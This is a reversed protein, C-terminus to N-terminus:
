RDKKKIDEEAKKRYTGLLEVVEPHAKALEMAAAGSGRAGGGQEIYKALTPGDNGFPDLLARVVAYEGSQAAYHLATNKHENGDHTTNCIERLRAPNDGGFSELLVKVIALHGKASAWMLPTLNNTGQGLDTSRPAGLALMRKVTALKGDEAARELATPGLPSNDVAVRVQCLAVFRDKLAKVTDTHKGGEAYELASKGAETSFGPEDRLPRGVPADHHDYFEFWDLTKKEWGERAVILLLECVETYGGAAAHILATKGASDKAAVPGAKTNRLAKCLEAVM